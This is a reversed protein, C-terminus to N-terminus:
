RRWVQKFEQDFWMEADYDSGTTSRFDLYLSYGNAHLWSKFQTFSPHEREDPSLTEAWQWCLSRIAPEVESKKM